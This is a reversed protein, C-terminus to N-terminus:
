QTVKMKRNKKTKRKCCAAIDTPRKGIGRQLEEQKQKRGNQEAQTEVTRREKWEERRYEKILHRTAISYGSLTIYRPWAASMVAECYTESM